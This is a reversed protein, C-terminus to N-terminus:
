ITVILSQWVRLKYRFADTYPMSAKDLDKAKNLDLLLIILEEVADFFDLTKDLLNPQTLM